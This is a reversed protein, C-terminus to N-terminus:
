NRETFYDTLVGFPIFVRKGAMVLQEFTSVKKPAIEHKSVGM